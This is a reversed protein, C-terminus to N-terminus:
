GLPEGVPTWVTPRRLERQKLFVVIVTDKHCVKTIFEFISAKEGDHISAEM